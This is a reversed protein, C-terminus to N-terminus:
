HCLSGVVMFSAFVSFIMRPWLCYLDDANCQVRFCSKAGISMSLNSKFGRFPDRSLSMEVKTRHAHDKDQYETYGTHDAQATWGATGRQAVETTSVSIWNYHVMCAQLVFLPVVDHDLM